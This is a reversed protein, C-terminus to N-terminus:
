ARRFSKAAGAHPLPLNNKSKKASNESYNGVIKQAIPFGKQTLLNVVRIERKSLDDGGRLRKAMKDLASSM